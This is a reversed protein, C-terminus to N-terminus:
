AITVLFYRSYYRQTNFDLSNPSKYQPRPAKSPYNLSFLFFHIFYNKIQQSYLSKEYNLGRINSVKLLTHPM